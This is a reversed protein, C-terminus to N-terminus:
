IKVIKKEQLHSMTLLEKTENLVVSSMLSFTCIKHDGDFDNMTELKLEVFGVSDKLYALNNQYEIRKTHKKLKDYNFGSKYGFTRVLNINDVSLYQLIAFPHNELNSLTKTDLFVGIMYMKPKMSYPSVYTCINMNAVNENSLTSLSYVPYNPLNWLKQM